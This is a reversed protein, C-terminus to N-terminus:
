GHREKSRLEIHWRRGLVFAWYDLTEMSAFQKGTMVRSVHKETVGVRRAFEAQTMGADTLADLLLRAM